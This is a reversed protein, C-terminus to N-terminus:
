GRHAKATEAERHATPSPSSQRTASSNARYRADAEAVVARRAALEAQLEPDELMYLPMGRRVESGPAVLWRQFFGDAGTNLIADDPLWIVGEATTRLPAPLVFLLALLAAILGLTRRNAVARRQQLSAGRYIHKWAKWLPLGFQTVLSWLALLVGIIFFEGAVFLMISLTVFTRYCWALPTYLVLWPKERPATQPPTLDHVGYFYRDWLWTLYQQGRQALNPTEILDSLIYYADYRLLPNGNVVLTSIGTIILTNYAVARVLGPESFVWVYMAVAAIALETLMGAAGVVARRYKSPFAAAASADVYPFPAFVLFMLGM